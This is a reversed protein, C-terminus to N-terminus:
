IMKRYLDRLFIVLDFASESNRQTKDFHQTQKFFSPDRSHLISSTFVSVLEYLIVKGLRQGVYLTRSSIM